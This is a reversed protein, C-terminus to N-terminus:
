VEAPITLPSRPRPRKPSPFGKLRQGRWCMGFWALFILAGVPKALTDGAGFSGPLHQPLTLVIFTAVALPLRRVAIVVFAAGLLAGIAYKPSYVALAGLLAAVGAAAWTITTGVGREPSLRSWAFEYVSM